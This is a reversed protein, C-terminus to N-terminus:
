VISFSFAECKPSRNPHREGCRTVPMCPSGILTVPLWRGQKMRSRVLEMYFVADKPRKRKHRNGNCYRCAAVVNEEIDRGGDCRPKLHEATCQFQLAARATLGFRVSFGKPDTEWM